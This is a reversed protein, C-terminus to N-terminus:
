AAMMEHTKTLHRNVNHIINKKMDLFNILSAKIDADKRVLEIIEQEIPEIDKTKEIGFLLYDASVKFFNSLAEIQPASINTEGKEILSVATQSIGLVEGLAGQTMGEKKRLEKIRDKIQTKM